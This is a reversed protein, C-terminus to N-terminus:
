STDRLIYEYRMNKGSKGYFLLLLIDGFWVLERLLLNGSETTSSRMAELLQMPTKKTKFINATILSNLLFTSESLQQSLVMVLFAWIVRQKNKDADRQMVGIVALCAM